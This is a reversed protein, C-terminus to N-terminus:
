AAELAAVKTELTEIKTIAEQLAATLLPVFKSQDITQPKIETTSVEKVDGVKKGEPIEDGEKYLISLMEDKVGTVAEPVVAQAEHAFFGDVRRGLDSKWEFQYSKLNKVRTIGDTILAANTKLRYDSSTNYSTTNSAGNSTIQGCFDDNGDKFVLMGANGSNAATRLESVDGDNLIKFHQNSSNMLFIMKDHTMRFRNTRTGGSRMSIFFDGETSGNGVMAANFEANANPGNISFGVCKNDGSTANVGLIIAPNNAATAADYDTGNAQNLRLRSGTAPAVGIGANGTSNNFTFGSEAELTNATGSGTIIRNDANNNITTGSVTEFTPDAGNNARLFKGDNSSTGHELKALTVAEDAIRSNTIADDAVKANTIADNAIKATTVQSDAIHATDISGDTYHESNIADDAIKAGTVADAAIKATTVNADTIKATTVADDLIETTGVSNNAMKARIITTNSISANTITGSVLKSDTIVGDAIKAATVAQNVIAATDVADDALESSGVANAAIESSGVANAAIESSGVADAPIKGSTVADDKVGATSIQTLAM